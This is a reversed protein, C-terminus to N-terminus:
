CDKTSWGRPRSAAPVYPPPRTWGELAVGEAELITSLPDWCSDCVEFTKGDKATLRYPDGDFLEGCICCGGTIFEEVKM